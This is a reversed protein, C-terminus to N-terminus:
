FACRYFSILFFRIGVALAVMTILTLDHYVVLSRAVDNAPDVM